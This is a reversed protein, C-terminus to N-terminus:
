ITTQINIRIFVSDMPPSRKVHCNLKMNWLHCTNRSSHLLCQRKSVLISNVQAVNTYCERRSDLPFMYTGDLVDDSKDSCSTEQSLFVRRQKHPTEHTLRFDFKHVATVVCFVVSFLKTIECACFMNCKLQNASWHDCVLPPRNEGACVMATTLQLSCPWYCCSISM